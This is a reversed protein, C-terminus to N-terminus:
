EIFKVYKSVCYSPKLFPWRGVLNQECMLVGVSLLRLLKYKYGYIIFIKLLKPRERERRESDNRMKEYREHKMRDGTTRPGVCKKNQYSYKFIIKGVNEQGTREGEKERLERTWRVYRESEKERVRVRVRVCKGNWKRACEWASKSERETAGVKDGERM